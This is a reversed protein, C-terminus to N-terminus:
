LSWLYTWNPWAQKMTVVGNSEPFVEVPVMLQGLGSEWVVRRSLTSDLVWAKDQSAGNFQEESNWNTWKRVQVLAEQSDGVGDWTLGNGATRESFVSGKESVPKGSSM